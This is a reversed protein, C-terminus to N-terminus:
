KKRRRLMMVAAAGLLGLTTPEPVVALNLGTSSWSTAWDFGSPLNLRVLSSVQSFDAIGLADYTIVDFSQGLQPVFGGWLAVNIEVPNEASADLGLLEFDNTDYFGLGHDGEMAPAAGGLEILFRDEGGAFVVNTAESHGPSFGPDFTGEVIHTGIGTLNINGKLLGFYVIRSTEGARIEGDVQFVDGYFSTTAGGSSIIKSTAFTGRVVVDGFIDTKAAFNMLGSELFLGSSSVDFTPPNDGPASSITSEGFILTGDGIIQGGNNTMKNPSEITGGNVLRFTGGTNNLNDAGNLKLVETFSSRIEGTNIVPPEVSGTGFILGGPLNLIQTGLIRSAPSSLTVTGSNQMETGVRFEGGTLQLLGNPDVFTKRGAGTVNIYSGEGLTLTRNGLTGRGPTGTTPTVYFDDNTLNFTGSLFTLRYGNQLTGTSFTGGDLYLTSNLTTRGVVRLHRDNLIRLTMTPGSGVALVRSIPEFVSIILDDSDTIEGGYWNFIGQNNDTNLSGFEICGGFLNVTDGAWIKLMGDVDLCANPGVTLVGSGVNSSSSGGVYLNGTNHWEVMQPFDLPNGGNLTIDGSTVSGVYATRTTISSEEIVQGVVGGSFNLLSGSGVNSPLTIDASQVTLMPNNSFSMTSTTGTLTVDDDLLISGNHNMTFNGPVTIPGDTNEFDVSTTTLNGAALTLPTNIDILGNVATLTVHSGANVDTNVEIGGPAIITMTTGSTIADFAQFTNTAGYTELYLSTGADIAGISLNGGHEIHVSGTTDLVTGTNDFTSLSGPGRSDFNGTVTTDGQLTVPANDADITADGGSTWTGQVTVGNATLTSFTTSDLNDTVILGSNTTTMEMSTGTTVDDTTIDGTMTFTSSGTSVVAGGVTSLDMGAGVNGTVSLNGGTVSIGASADIDAGSVTSTFTADGNSTTVAGDITIDGGSVSMTTGATLVSATIPGAISPDSQGNLITLFTGAVVPDSTSDFPGSNVNIATFSGAATAGANIDITNGTATIFIDGSTSEVLGDSSFSTSNTTINLGSTLASVDIANVRDIQTQGDVSLAFGVSSFDYGTLAILDGSSTTTVDAGFITVGVSSDTSLTFTGAADITATTTINPVDITLDGTVLPGDITADGTHVVSTTGSTLTAGSSTNFTTGTSSFTGTGFDTGITVPGAITLQSLGVVSGIGGTNDFSSGAVIFDAASTFDANLDVAGTHNITMTGVNTTLTGLALTSTFDTGSSTFTGTVFDAGITVPGGITLQSLGVVSGAGDTNDFSSGTVIFDAASAFAANLDVAGSHSITMTGTSTTMTGTTLLSTFDTGSSTFSGSLFDAGVIVAGSFTLESHGAVNGTGDTNDFTTGTATFDSASVFDANIDVAGSHLISIAGSTTSLTGTTFVSTFDTGSSTFTGSDFDAGVTVAGTFTLTSLGTVLGTGDTNDFTSGTATFDLASVFAANLDVAGTHVLSISGVTSTLTGTAATTTFNVGASSFSTGQTAADLLVNIPNAATTNLDITSNSITSGLSIDAGSEVHVLGDVTFTVGTSDFTTGTDAVFHGSTDITVNGGFDASTGAVLDYDGHVTFVGTTAISGTDFDVSAADFDGDVVSTDAVSFTAPGAGSVDGAAASVFSQATVGFTGGTMGLSNNLTTAGALSTASFAGDVLSAGNITIGTPAIITLDSGFDLVDSTFSMTSSSFYGTTSGTVSPSLVINGITQVDVLGTVDIAASSTFTDSTSTLPGSTIAGDVIADDDLTFTIAGTNSIIGAATSTFGVADVDLTSGSTQLTNNLTVIGSDSTLSVADGTDVAGNFTIGSLANATLTTGITLTDATVLSGADSVLSALGGTDVTGTFSIGTSATVDLFTGITMADAATLGGSASMLTASEGVDLTSTFDIGTLADIELTTGVSMAGASFDAGTSNIVAGNTVVSLDALHIYGSQDMTLGLGVTIAATADFDTGGNVDLDGDVDLTNGLSTTTTTNVTTDGGVDIAETSALSDTTLLLTGSTWTGDISTAQTVTVEADTTVIVPAGVNFNLAGLMLSDSTFDMSFTTDGTSAMTAAGIAQITGGPNDFTGSDITMAASSFLDGNITVVGVHNLTFNGDDSSLPVSNTFDIGLSSFTNAYIAADITVSADYQLLTFDGVDPGYHDEFDVPVHATSISFSDVPTTASALGHITGAGEILFQGATMVVDADTEIVNSVTLEGQMDIGVSGATTLTATASTNDFRIGYAYFDGSGLNIPNTLTLVGPLLDSNGTDIGTREDVGVTSTDDLVSRRQNRAYLSLNLSDVTGTDGDLISNSLTLDDASRLVLHRTETTGTIVQDFDIDVDVSMDGQENNPLGLGTRVSADDSAFTTYIDGVDLNQTTTLTYWGIAQDIPDVQTGWAASTSSGSITVNNGGVFDLQPPVVAMATIGNTFNFPTVGDLLTPFIQTTTGDVADVSYLGGTGAINNSTTGMYLSGTVSTTYDGVMATVSNFYSGGVGWVPDFDSGPTVTDYAYLRSSTSTQRTSNGVLVRGDDTMMMAGLGNAFNEDDVRTTSNDSLDVTMLQGTGAANRSSTGVILQNSTEDFVMSGVGNSITYPLSDRTLNLKTSTSAGLTTYNVGISYIAGSGSTSAAGTGIYLDGTSALNLSTVGNFYQTSGVQTTVGSGPNLSFIRGSGGSSQSATGVFINSNRDVALGGVGNFFNGGVQEVTNAVPDYIYVRGSGSINNSSTGLLIQGPKLEAGAAFSAMVSCAALTAAALVRPSFVSRRHIPERRHDTSSISPGRSIMRSNNRSNKSQSRLM